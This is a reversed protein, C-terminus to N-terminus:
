QCLYTSANFTSKVYKKNVGGCTCCLGAISTTSVKTCAAMCTGSSTSGDPNIGYTPDIWIDGNALPTFSIYPNSQDAFRLKQKLQAPYALASGDTRKVNFTFMTDCGVKAAGVWTLRHEERPCLTVSGDLANTDCTGQVRYNVVLRSALAYPDLLTKVSGFGQLYIKGQAQGYQWSLIANINPCGGICRSSGKPGSADSGTSLALTEMNGSTGPAQGNSRVVVFDRGVQWRGLETAVAVAFAAMASKTGDPNTCNMQGQISLAFSLSLSLACM